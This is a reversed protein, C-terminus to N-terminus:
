SCSTVPGPQPGPTPPLHPEGYFPQIEPLATRWRQHQRYVEGLDAVFFAKEADPVHDAALRSAHMIGNRLHVEPHGAHLPPLAPFIVQGDDANPNVDATVLIPPPAALIDNVLANTAWPLGNEHFPSTSIDFDIPNHAALTELRSM